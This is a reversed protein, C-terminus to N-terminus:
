WGTAGCLLSAYALFADIGMTLIAGGVGLIALALAINSRNEKPTRARIVLSAVGSFLALVDAIFILPTAYCGLQSVISPFILSPLFLLLSLYALVFYSKRLFTTKQAGKM